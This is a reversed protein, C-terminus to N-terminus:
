KGSARGNRPREIAPSGGVQAPPQQVPDDTEKRIAALIRAVAGDTEPNHGWDPLRRYQVQIIHHSYEVFLDDTDLRQALQFQSLFRPDARGWLVPPPVLGYQPDAVQDISADVLYEGSVVAVLHGGLGSTDQDFGVGVARAGHDREWSELQESNTPPGFQEVLARYAANGVSLRVELHDAPIGLHQMVDITIWTSAICSDQTHDRLIAPRAVAAFRTVASEVPMVNPDIM